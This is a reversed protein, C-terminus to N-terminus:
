FFKLSVWNMYHVFIKDDLICKYFVNLKVYIIFYGNFTINNYIVNGYIKNMNRYCTSNQMLTIDCLTM